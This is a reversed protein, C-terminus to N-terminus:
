GEESARASLFTRAGMSVVVNSLQLFPTEEGSCFTLDFCLRVDTSDPRNTDLWALLTDNWHDIMEQLTAITGSPRSAIEVLLTPQMMVPLSVPPLDPSLTYLYTCACRIGLVGEDCGVLLASFFKQLHEKLTGEGILTIPLERDYRILPRCLDASRAEGANYVFAPSTARGPILDANRTLRVTTTAAHRHLLNLRPITVRRDAIDRGVAATLLKGQAPDEFWYLIGASTPGTRVHTTYGPITVVPHGAGEPPLGTLEVVLADTETDVTGVCERLTFHYAGEEDGNGSRRASEEPGKWERWAQVIRDFLRNFSALAVGPDGVGSARGSRVTGEAGAKALSARLVSEIAPYVAVFGALEAVLDGTPAPGAPDDSRHTGEGGPRGARPVNFTVGFDLRDRSHHTSQSYTFSYDWRLLDNLIDSSVPESGEGEHDVPVPAIPLARLPVPPTEADSGSTDDSEEIIIFAAPKDAKGDTDADIRVISAITYASSLRNELQQRFFTRAEAIPGSAGDFLTQLRDGVIEVLASRHKLLDVLYSTGRDHDLHVIAKRYRPSLLRDVAEVLQRGWVDMDVGVVSRTSSPHRSFDIGTRVDFDWIPIADRSIPLTSLPTPAFITDTVVDSIQM